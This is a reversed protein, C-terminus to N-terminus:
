CCSEGALVAERSGACCSSDANRQESEELVVYTEWRRGDPDTAWVKTQVAYCCTTDQEVDVAFGADRLCTAQTEVATPSEVVIGYHTADGPSSTPDLDLALELPPDDSVFLAYDDFRKAPERGLLVSYFAASRELDRTPLNLHMKMM